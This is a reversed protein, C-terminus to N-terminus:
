IPTHHRSRHHRRPPIRAADSNNGMASLVGALPDHSQNKLYEGIYNEGISKINPDASNLYSYYSSVANYDIKELGEAMDVLFNKGFKLDNVHDGDSDTGDMIANLVTIRGYHGKDNVSDVIKDAVEQSKKDGWTTSASALAEGLISTLDLSRQYAIAIDADSRGSLGPIKDTDLPLQTINEPGITDILGVSYSTNGTNTTMSATVDEYSRGSKPTGGGLITQLDKADLAGQSWNNFENEGGQLVADPVNEVTITGGNMTAISNQNLEIIRNM